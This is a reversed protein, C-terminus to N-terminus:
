TRNSVRQVQGILELIQNTNNDVAFKATVALRGAHARQRALQPKDLVEALTNHWALKDGAQVLWGTVGDEITEPIGDIRNAVVPVELALAEIQTMGLPEVTSPLIVVDAKRLLPAVMNLMGSLYVHESLDLQRIRTEIRSIMEGEGAMICRVQPFLTRLGDIVELMFLHGKEPRLMAAHVLLPGPHDALWSTLEPPLPLMAAAEIAEFAIGPYVIHIRGSHINPNVLIQRRLSASPVMTLDVLHNYVFSGPVGPQYTRSRLIAPRNSILRAALACVNTDHGSHCIIADPRLNVLRQRVRWISPFHLSNCFSVPSMELKLQKAKTAIKANPRCLLHTKIGRAKLAQMQQLLQLEQGGLNLSSESFLICAIL